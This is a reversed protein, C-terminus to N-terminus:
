PENSRTRHTWGFSYVSRNLKDLMKPLTFPLGLVRDDVAYWANVAKQNTFDFLVKNM